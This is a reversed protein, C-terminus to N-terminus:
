MTVYEYVGNATKYEILFKDSTKIYKYDLIRIPLAPPKQGTAKAHETLYAVLLRYIIVQEIM